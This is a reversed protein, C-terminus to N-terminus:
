QRRANGRVPGAKFNGEPVRGCAILDQHLVRMTHATADSVDCEEGHVRHHGSTRLEHLATELTAPQLDIIEIAAGHAAFRRAIALGIGSAGGTIVATKGSLNFASAPSTQPQSM